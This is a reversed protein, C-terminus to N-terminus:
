KFAFDQTIWLTQELMDPTENKAKETCCVVKKDEPGSKIVDLSHQPQVFSM